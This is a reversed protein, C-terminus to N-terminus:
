VYLLQLTVAYLFSDRLNTQFWTPGSQLCTLQGNSRMFERVLIDKSFVDFLYCFKSLIPIIKTQTFIHLHRYISFIPIDNYVMAKCMVESPSTRILSRILQYYKHVKLYTLM